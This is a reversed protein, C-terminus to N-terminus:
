LIASIPERAIMARTPMSIPWIRTTTPGIPEVRAPEGGVRAHELGHLSIGIAYPDPLGGEVADLADM